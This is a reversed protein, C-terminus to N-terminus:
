RERPLAHGYRQQRRMVTIPCIRILVSFLPYGVPPSTAHMDSFWRWILADGKMDHYRGSDRGRRRLRYSGGHFPGDFPSGVGSPGRNPVCRGIACSGFSCLGSTNGSPRAALLTELSVGEAAPRPPRRPRGHLHRHLLLQPRLRGALAAHAPRRGRPLRGPAARAQAARRPVRGGHGPRGPGRTRGARRARALERRTTHAGPTATPAWIARRVGERGVPLQMPACIPAFASVRATASPTACRAVLAGHGGMSHGFIARARGTSRSDRRSWRRCSRPSTPTCGTTRAGVPGRTADVYFGAGSGFDYSDHEGPLGARAPQHGARRHDPWARRCPAPRGGERHFEGLHLDPRVALVAGPGPRAGGAAASLGRVGDRM